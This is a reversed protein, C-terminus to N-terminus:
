SSKSIPSTYRLVSPRVIESTSLVHNVFRVSFVFWDCKLAANASAEGNPLIRTLEAKM